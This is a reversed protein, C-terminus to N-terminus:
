IKELVARKNLNWSGADVALVNYTNGDYSIRNATTLTTDYPVTLTWRNFPQVAGAMVIEFGQRYPDVRCAVGTDSTGLTEVMGGRSNSTYSVTLIDCTDPLSVAELEDRMGELEWDSLLNSM